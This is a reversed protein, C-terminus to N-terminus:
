DSGRVKGIMGSNLHMCQLIVPVPTYQVLPALRWGHQKKECAPATDASCFCYAAHCCTDATQVMFWLANMDEHKYSSSYYDSVTKITKVFFLRTQIICFCVRISKSGFYVQFINQNWKSDLTSWIFGPYAETGVVRCLILPSLYQASPKIRVFSGATCIICYSWNGGTSGRSRWYEWLGEPGFNCGAKLPILSLEYIYLPWVQSNILIKTRTEM